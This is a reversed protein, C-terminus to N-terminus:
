FILCVKVKSLQKFVFDLSRGEMMQEQGWTKCSKIGNGLWRPPPKPNLGYEVFELFIAAKFFFLAWPAGKM